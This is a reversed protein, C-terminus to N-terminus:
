SLASSGIVAKRIKSECWRRGTNAPVPTGIKVAMGIDIHIVVLWVRHQDV